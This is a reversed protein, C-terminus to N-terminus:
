RLHHAYWALGTNCESQRVDQDDQMIVPVHAIQSVLRHRSLHAMTCLGLCHWASFRGDVQNHKEWPTVHYHVPLTGLLCM